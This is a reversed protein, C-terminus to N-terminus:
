TDLALRQAFRRKGLDNAVTLPWPIRELLGGPDACLCLAMGALLSHWWGTASLAIPGGSPRPLGM